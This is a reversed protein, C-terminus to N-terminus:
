IGMVILNVRLSGSIYRCNIMCYVWDPYIQHNAIIIAKEEVLDEYDGSLVLETPCLLFVLFVLMGGFSKQTNRIIKRFFSYIPPGRLYSILLLAYAFLQVFVLSLSIYLNFSAFVAISGYFQLNSVKPPM